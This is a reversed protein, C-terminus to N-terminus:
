QPQPPYLPNQEHSWKCIAENKRFLMCKSIRFEHYDVASVSCYCTCFFPVFPATYLEGSQAFIDHGRAPDLIFNCLFFLVVAM